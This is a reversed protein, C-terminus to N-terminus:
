CDNEHYSSQKNKAALKGGRPARFGRPSLESSSCCAVYPRTARYQRRRHPMASWPLGSLLPAVLMAIGADLM